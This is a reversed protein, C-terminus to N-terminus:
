KKKVVDFMNVQDTLICSYVVKKIPQSLKNPQLDSHPKAPKETLLFVKFYYKQDQLVMYIAYKEIGRM